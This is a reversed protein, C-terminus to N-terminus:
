RALAAVIADAVARHYAAKPHLLQGDTGGGKVGNIWPDASCLEHGRTLEWTDIYTVKLPAALARYAKNLNELVLRLRSAAAAPLPLEARCDNDDPLIRPYGVLVIQAQPARERIAKISATVADTIVALAAIATKDSFGLYQRCGTDNNLEPQCVYLLNYAAGNNNLGIGLTVLSTDTGVVDLQAENIVGGKDSQPATLDETSAGGCSADILDTRELAKAVLTPYDVKSRNCAKDALPAIGAGSTYSDGLAAFGAVTAPPEDPVEERGCAAVTLLASLAAGVAILRATRNM